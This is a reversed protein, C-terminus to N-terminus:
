HSGGSSQAVGGRQEQERQKERRERDKRERIRKVATKFEDDHFQSQAHQMIEGRYTSSLRNVAREGPNAQGRIPLAAADRLGRASAM